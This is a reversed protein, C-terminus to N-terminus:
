VIICITVIFTRMFVCSYNVDMNESILTPAFYSTNTLSKRVLIKATIKEFQDTM